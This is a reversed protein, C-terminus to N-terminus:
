SATIRIEKTTLGGSVKFLSEITNVNATISSDHTRSPSAAGEDYEVLVCHRLGDGGLALIKAVANPMRPDFGRGVVFLLDRSASNLLSRWFSEFNPGGRLVYNLWRDPSNATPM